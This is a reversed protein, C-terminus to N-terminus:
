RSGWNPHARARGILTQLDPESYGTTAAWDLVAQARRPQGLKLAAELFLLGDVPEKQQAWNKEALVLGAKTDHGYRILFIMRPREILSERRLDQSDFRALVRQALAATNGDKLGQSALLQQVLLADSPNDQRAIQLAQAHQGVENLLEALALRVGHAQPREKLHAQWIGLAQQTQGAVRHAHGWHFRLWDQALPGRFQPHQVSQALLEIAKLPQGTRYLLIARCPQAEWQAVRQALSECDQKAGTMDALLLRLAFRWSWFEAREPQLSLARGLDQLAPEFEHFGQLVLARTFHGEASLEPKSWWPALAARARGWWRLDGETLGLEFVARAYDVAAQLDDPRARRAEDLDRLSRISASAHVSSALVVQDRAPEFRAQAFALHGSVVLGVALLWRGTCFRHNVLQVM